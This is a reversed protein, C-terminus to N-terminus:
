HGVIGSFKGPNRFYLKLIPDSRLRRSLALMAQSCTDMRRELCESLRQAAETTLFLERNPAFHEYLPMLAGISGFLLRPRTLGEWRYSDLVDTTQAIM